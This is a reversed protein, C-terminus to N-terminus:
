LLSRLEARFGAADLPRGLHWGQLRDVGLQQLNTAHAADEVAEATVSLGLDHCMTVLGRVVADARESNGAQRSIEGDLKVTEVPLACLYAMASFGTGFDDVALHVGYSRLANLADLIDESDNLMVDETIELTLLRAPTHTQRLAEIVSDLLRLDRIQASAMNVSIGLHEADPVDRRWRAAEELANRLVWTGLEVILGTEHAVPLFQDPTLLGRDPHHWRVLAEVSTLARTRADVEPQFHLVFQQDGIAKRLGAETDLRLMAADHLEATSVRLRSRGAEKAAYMAISADRLVGAPDLDGGACNVIGISVGIVIEQGDLSFPEVLLDRTRVALIQASAASSNEALIVFEDGGFRALTDAATVMRTLRQAVAALLRDGADHGLSDNVLKFRDLDLFLVSFPAGGTKIRGIAHEVRNHLLVRNPLGTLRDHIATRSLEEQAATLETVDDHTVVAGGGALGTVRIRVATGASSTLTAAEFTGDGGLVGRTGSVVSRVWAADGRGIEDTVAFYSAGACCRSPDAGASQIFANWAKNVGVVAGARNLVATAADLADLIDRQFRDRDTLVADARRREVAYRVARRVAGMESKLVYDQAGEHLALLGDAEADDEVLVVVPVDPAMERLARLPGTGEVDALSLDLLVCMALDVTLAADDIREVHVVRFGEPAVSIISKVREADQRDAQVLLLLPAAM